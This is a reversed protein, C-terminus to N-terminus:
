KLILSGISNNNSAITTKNTDYNIIMIVIVRMMLTM